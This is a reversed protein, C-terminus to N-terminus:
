FLHGKVKASRKFNVEVEYTLSNIAILKGELLKRVTTLIVSKGIMIHSVNASIDSLMCQLNNQLESLIKSCAFAYVNVKEGVKIYKARKIKVAEVGM